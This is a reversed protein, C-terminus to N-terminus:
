VYFKIRVREEKRMVRIIITGMLWAKSTDINIGNEQMGICIIM